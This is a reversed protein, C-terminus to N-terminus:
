KPWINTAEGYLSFREGHNEYQLPKDTVPDLFAEPPAYSKIADLGDPWTGHEVQYQKIATLLRLGRRQALRKLYIDHFGIYPRSTGKTLLWILFRCNLELSPPPGITQKDWDYGSEAMAHYEEYIKDIMKAAKQPTAPFVFWALIAYAKMSKRYWYTEEFRRHRFRGWIADSPNRSYRVRSQADKEFVLSCFTNKVFFSDYELCQLFDSSWNNELNTLSDAVVGLQKENLQEEIVLKKIPTLALGEISFCLLFDAIRKQQYLHDAIRLACVYKLLGQDLRGEAVNNNASLLLLIAWSKLATYRNLELVDTVRLKFNSPFRCAKFQSAHLLIRITNGHERLWQTLEPYDASIWPASLVIRRVGPRLFTLRMKQPDFDRVLKNYIVAANEEYPIIYKAEFEDWEKEFMYPRWSDNGEPLFVWVTLALLVIGVSLWFWKRAPKPLATFVVLIIVLLIVIKLSVEFVLALLIVLTLAGLGIWRLIQKALGRKKNEPHQKNKIM